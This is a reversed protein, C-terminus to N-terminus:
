SEVIVVVGCTGPRKVLDRLLRCDFSFLTSCDFWDINLIKRAPRLEHCQFDASKLHLFLLSLPIRLSVFHKKGSLCKQLSSAVVVYTDLAVLLKDELSGLQVLM